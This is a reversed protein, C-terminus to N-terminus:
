TFISPTVDRHHHWRHLWSAMNLSHRARNLHALKEMVAQVETTLRARVEQEGLGQSQLSAVLPGLDLPEGISVTVLNGPRILCPQSDGPAVPNPLVEAMGDHCVPLLLPAATCSAILHGVGWRFRPVPYPYAVRGEPFINVWGGQNLRQLLFQMAPQHVGWGRVIPVVKGLSWFTALGRNLFIVESASAGWRMLRTDMLQSASLLAGWIGPDDFCSQHNIVSLLPRGKPRALATELHEAGHVVTTNFGKLILKAQLGVTLMTFSSLARWLQTPWPGRWSGPTDMAEVAGAPFLGEVETITEKGNRWVKTMGVWVGPNVGPKVAEGQYERLAEEAKKPREMTGEERDSAEVPLGAPMRVFDSAM